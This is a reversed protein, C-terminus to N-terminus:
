SSSLGYRALWERFRSLTMVEVGELDVDKPGLTPLPPASAAAGGADDPVILRLGTTFLDGEPEGARPFMERITAGDDSVMAELLRVTQVGMEFPNQVVMADIRGAAMDEIAAAQADFTVVTTRDRVGREQVVEAIAPANYAWIGVLAALEPHNVLASRVNDRAKALDMEDSMRDIETFAPGVAEKFGNMRARANDNDTFGAFQVYGGSSRGRRELLRRAATGLLRGGVVNDTGIYWPRADPFKERNVDGDVTIVRVGKAALNRMEEVIAANEAQIVSIAVGAVDSQSALQRLKEIQGQATGNNKEMVVRLGAAAIEHRRAGEMLGANCADWFPDDGNTIFILRRGAPGPGGSAAPAGGPEQRGCGTVSAALFVVLVPLFGRLGTASFRDAAPTMSPGEHRTPFHAPRPRRPPREIGYVM